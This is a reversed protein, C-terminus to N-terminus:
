VSSVRLVNMSHSVSTSVSTSVSVSVSVPASLTFAVHLLVQFGPFSSFPTSDFRAVWTFRRSRTASSSRSRRARSRPTSSSRREPSGTPRPPSRLAMLVQSITDVTSPRGRHRMAAGVKYKDGLQLSDIVRLLEPFNRGTSAPYAITLRIQKAPDVPPTLSLEM